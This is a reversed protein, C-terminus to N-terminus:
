DPQNDYRTGALHELRLLTVQMQELQTDTFYEHFCSLYTAIVGAEEYDKLAMNVNLAWFSEAILTEQNM